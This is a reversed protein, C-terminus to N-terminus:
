VSKSARGHGNDNSCKNEIIDRLKDTQEANSLAAKCDSLKSLTEANAHINVVDVIRQTNAVGSAVIVQTQKCLENIIDKQGSLIKCCCEASAAAQRNFGNQTSMESTHFLNTMNVNHAANAASIQGQQLCDLKAQTAGAAVGEASGGGGFIGDNGRLLGITLIWKIWNDEQNGDKFQALLGSLDSASIGEMKTEKVSDTVEKNSGLVNNPYTDEHEM